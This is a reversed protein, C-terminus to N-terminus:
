EKKKKKWKRCGDERSCEGGEDGEAAIAKGVGFHERKTRRLDHPVKTAM